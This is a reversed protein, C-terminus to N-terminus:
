IYKDSASNAVTIPQEFASHGLSGLHFCDALFFAVSSKQDITLAIAGFTKDWLVYLFGDVSTPLRSLRCTPGDPPACRTSRVNSRQTARWDAVVPCVVEHHLALLPARVACKPHTPTCLLQGFGVFLNNITMWHERPLWEELQQM